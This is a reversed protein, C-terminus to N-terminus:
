YGYMTDGYMNEAAGVEDANQMAFEGQDGSLDGRGYIGVEGASYESLGLAPTVYEHILDVAVSVWAGIAVNRALGGLMGGKGKFILKLAGPIVVGGIIAKAATRGLGSQFQAPIGPIYKIAASTGIETVAVGIGIGIGTKAGAMLGGSLGGFRPNSHRRRRSHTRRRHSRRRRRPNAAAFLHRRRRRVKTRRHSSRAKRARRRRRRPNIVM